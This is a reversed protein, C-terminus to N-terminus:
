VSQQTNDGSPREEPPVLVELGESTARLQMGLDGTMVKVRGAFQSVEHAVDLIEEDADSPRYRPREALILEITADDRLRVPGRDGNPFQKAIWPVLRRAASRLRESNSHKKDNIEEIVRLPIMLRAEVGLLAKWNVSDPRQYELLANSDVVIPLGGGQMRAVQGRLYNVMELLDRRKVELETSILTTLQDGALMSCIDRHRPNDFFAQADERLLVSGLHVELDTAWRVYDNHQDIPHNRSLPSVAAGVGGALQNIEAIARAPDVGPALRVRM